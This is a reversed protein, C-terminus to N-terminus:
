FLNWDKKDKSKYHRYIPLIVLSFYTKSSFILIHAIRNFPLIKNGSKEQVEQDIKYNYIDIFEDCFDVEEENRIFFDEVSIFMFISNFAERTENLDDEDDDESSSLTDDTKEEEIEDYKGGKCQENQTDNKTELNSQKGFLIQWLIEKKETDSANELRM